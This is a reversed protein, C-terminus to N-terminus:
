TSCISQNTKRIVQCISVNMQMDLNDGIIQYGHPINEQLTKIAVNCAETPDTLGEKKGVAFITECCDIASENSSIDAHQSFVAEAIEKQSSLCSFLIDSTDLTQFEHETVHDQNSATSTTLNKTKMLVSEFESLPPPSPNSM